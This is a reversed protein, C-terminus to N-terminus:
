RPFCRCRSASCVNVYRLSEWVSYMRHRSDADARMAFSIAIVFPSKVINSHPPRPAHISGCAGGAEFLASSPSSVDCDVDAIMVQRIQSAMSIQLLVPPSKSQMLRLGLTANLQALVAHWASQVVPVQASCPGTDQTSHNAPTPRLVAAVRAAGIAPDTRAHM